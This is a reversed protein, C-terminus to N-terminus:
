APWPAVGRVQALAAALAGVLTDIDGQCTERGFSFRLGSRAAADAHGMAQLVHSPQAVGSTCASGTSVAIGARDLLLLLDEGLCGDFLAHVIHPARLAPDAPGTVSVGPLRALGAILRASLARLRAAEAVRAAV